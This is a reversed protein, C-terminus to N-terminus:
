AGGGVTPLVCAGVKDLGAMPPVEGDFYWATCELDPHVDKCPDPQETIDCVDTCCGADDADGYCDPLLTPTACILGPNCGSLLWCYDGLTNDDITPMCLWGTGGEAIADPYCGKDSPCDQVLPDCTNFCLPVGGFYVFCEEDADPCEPDEATGGCLDQCVGEGDGDIDLCINGAACNDVCSGLHGDVVCTDGTQAVPEQIPCCRSEDPILDALESWPSCKDGEACDQTFYDCQGGQGNGTEEDFSGTESTSTPSPAGTAPLFTTGSDDEPTQSTDESPLDDTCSPVALVAALPLWGLLILSVRM